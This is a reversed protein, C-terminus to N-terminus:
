SVGLLAHVFIPAAVFLVVGMLLGATGMLLASVRVLRVAETKAQHVMHNLRPYMAQSVPQLLGFAAKSIKEAGVYYGVVEGRAMLGLIFANGVTYLSVSCRFLFMTWGMRLASWALAPSPRQFRVVRYAMALLVATSLLSAAAQLMLVKWGDSPARVAVFIG